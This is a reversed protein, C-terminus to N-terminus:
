ITSPCIEGKESPVKQILIYQVFNELHEFKLPAEGFCLVGNFAGPRVCHGFPSM